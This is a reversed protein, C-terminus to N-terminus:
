AVKRFPNTVELNKKEQFMDELKMRNLFNSFAMWIALGNMDKIQPPLYKPLTIVGEDHYDKLVPLEDLTVKGAFLFPILDARGEKISMRMFNYIMVFGKLYSIDKTFPSGGTLPAGRFIRGANKVAQYDEQGKDKFFRIVELLDAGDEAMQCAVLRDNLRKARRPFMAFNFLEMTVALGEQTATSCPPGKALWKAYPQNQGNLTTGLHVWGEHVEFIDLDKKSFRLDSKIKIYDSGASADSIIGDSLKVKIREDKFYEGLRIKLEGVVQESSLTRELSEGLMNEDLSNLLGSMVHALDSLKTKGDGMVENASGYLKKSYDYFDSKGRAMLMRIVDEYQICNRTMILGLPDRAGLERQIKLRLEKFEQLKKVPDYKLPRNDYSIEPLEKFKNKVLFDEIGESWKVSDLIQIPKQLENLILSLELIINKYKQDKM